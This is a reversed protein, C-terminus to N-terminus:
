RRGVSIESVTDDGFNTVWATDGDAAIGAPQEGVPIPDAVRKLTREDIVSVNDADQNTIWVRGGSIAVAVPRAGVKVRDKRREGAANKPGIRVVQDRDALAVWIRGKSDKAIGRPRGGVAIHERYTPEGDLDIRTVSRDKVNSVWVIGNEGVTVDRPGAGVKIEEPQGAHPLAIRTLTDADSNAVWVNDADVAVGKPGLGVAIREPQARTGPRFRTVTNAATSVAWVAGAATAVGDADAGVDLRESALRGTARDIRALRGSLDETVWVSDADLAIGDPGSGAALEVVDHATQGDGNGQSSPPKDDGGILATGLLVLVAGVVLGGAIMSARHRPLMAWRRDVKDASTDHTLLENPPGDGTRAEEARGKRGPAEDARGERALGISRNPQNTVSTEFIEPPEGAELQPPKAQSQAHARLVRELTAILRGVDFKWRENTLEVAHRRALPKLVNPLEDASPMRAGHVRVPIVRLGSRELATAVELRVFDEDNDLRRRNDAGTTTLWKPGIVVLLAACGSIDAEIQEVFDVGPELRLDMFVQDEGFHASLAEHLWGAHGAADERRYSIFIGPSLTGV